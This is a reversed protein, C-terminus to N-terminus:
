GNESHDSRLKIHLCSGFGRHKIDSLAFDLDTPHTVALRNGHRCAMADDDEASLSM